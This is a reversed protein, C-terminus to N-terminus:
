INQKQFIEDNEIYMKKGIEGQKSKTTWSTNICQQIVTEFHNRDIIWKKSMNYQIEKNVNILFGYKNTTFENMPAANTTIIVAGVSRSENIYHGYGEIESPCIHVGCQNMLNNLKNDDVKYQYLTINENMIIPKRLNLFGNQNENGYHVIHLMPWEPHELWIDLLMQSNKFRSQGKVHLYQNFDPNIRKIDRNISTWNWKLVKDGFKNKLINYGYETKAIIYKIKNTQMIKYDYKNIMELNPVFINCQSHELLNPMIHEIFFQKEFNQLGKVNYIDKEEYIHVKADYKEKLKHKLVITDNILGQSNHCCINVSM